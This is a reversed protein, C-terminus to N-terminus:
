SKVDCTREEPVKQADRVRRQSRCRSVSKKSSRNEEKSGIRLQFHKCCGKSPEKEM